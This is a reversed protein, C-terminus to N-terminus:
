QNEEEEMQIEQETFYFSSVLTEPLLDNPPWFDKYGAALHMYSSCIVEALAGLKACADDENLPGNKSNLAIYGTDLLMELTQFSHRMFFMLYNVCDEYSKALKDHIEIHGDSGLDFSLASSVSKAHEWALDAADKKAADVSNLEMLVSLNINREDSV